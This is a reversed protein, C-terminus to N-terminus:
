KCRKRKRVSHTATQPNIEFISQKGLALSLIDRQSCIAALDLWINSTVKCHTCNNSSLPEFDFPGMMFYEEDLLCVSAGWQIYKKHDPSINPRFLIRDGFVIDNSISNRSYRYWDLWWRGSNDCKSIDSLHKALFHCYYCGSVYYNTNFSEFADLNIQTIYWRRLMTGELNYQIFCLKNASEAINAVLQHPRPALSTVQSPFIIADNSVDVLSSSLINETAPTPPTTNTEGHLETNTPCSTVPHPLFVLADLESSPKDVIISHTSIPSISM